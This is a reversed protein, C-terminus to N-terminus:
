SYNRGSLVELVGNCTAVFVILKVHLGVLDSGSRGPTSAAPPVFESSLAKPSRQSSPMQSSVTVPVPTVRKMSSIDIAKQSSTTAASISPTALTTKFSQKSPQVASPSSSPLMQVTQSSPAASEMSAWPKIDSKSLSTGVTHNKEEDSDLVSSIEIVDETKSVHSHVSEQSSPATDFVVSAKRQKGRYCLLFHIVFFFCRKSECCFHVLLHAPDRTGLCLKSWINLM